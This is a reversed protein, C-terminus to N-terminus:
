KKKGYDLEAITVGGSGEGFEGLRFSKVHKNRKLLGQVAKKLAGTGRGHIIRVQELHALWADDIYKDVIPVAEDVTKGIVNVEPSISMSKGMKIASANAKQKRSGGAAGAPGNITDEQLLEIDNVNVSSRLIGMQVYLNGKADPLTSITGSLNLSLVKVKDGVHYTEPRNSKKKAPAQYALKENLQNLRENAARREKELERRINTDDTIRNVNRITEDVFSKAEQVIKKADENAERMMRERKEELNENSRSLRERLRKIEEKYRSAEEQEKELETRTNELDTIVDEFSLQQEGIFERAQDILYDPLGLKSSIAFANSKGPIGILLRYTPRLTNVDFECSANEVGPTSLAFLKLESYHTTAMTRTKMNHLFTLISMALAAGEVPDTGAGLEDFLCLSSPDAKELISVINVMHSSFTSLNQEISQEDGIDAYIEPFVSLQSGEFAPIHLGAQGMLSLLGVTKLSVTKGGTNPGTVILLDFSEGLTVTIPVVRKADLLPHRADKLRIIGETNFVPESGKMKRSLSAKAFIFDLKCLVEYDAALHDAELAAQNSLSSLIVEIEKREALELEKGENNLRVVAIPEIFFTSGSSSQDHVIGAVRSKHEAKVPLCYRGDRMTIVHDQLYDQSSLLLSNLQAHIRDDLAHLQRRIGKLTPSADDSIEDESLICRRIERCLSPAPEVVDFYPDLSDPLIEESDKRNYAKVRAAVELLSAINMLEPITLVSGVALRKLSDRIDKVGGFAVTGSKFQRTVADTTNALADRIEQVDDMPVLSRCAEKGAPTAALETLMALIKDYELTRLVKDNM